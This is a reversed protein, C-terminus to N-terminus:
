GPHQWFRQLTFAIPALAPRSKRRNPFRPLYFSLLKAIAAATTKTADVVSVTGSRAAVSRGRSRKNGRASHSCAACLHTGYSARGFIGARFHGGSFALRLIGATFHWGYFSLAGGAYLSAAGM